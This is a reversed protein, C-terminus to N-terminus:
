LPRHQRLRSAAGPLDQISVLSYSKIRLVVGEAAWSRGNRIDLDDSARLERDATVATGIQNSLSPLSAIDIEVPGCRVATMDVEKRSGLGVTGRIANSLQCQDVRCIKVLIFREADIDLVGCSVERFRIAVLIASLDTLAGLSRCPVKPHDSRLIQYGPGTQGAYYRKFEAVEGRFGVILWDSIVVARWGVEVLADIPSIRYEHISGSHGTLLLLVIDLQGEVLSSLELNSQERVQM